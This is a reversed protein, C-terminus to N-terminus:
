RFVTQYYYKGILNWYRYLIASLYANQLLDNGKSTVYARCLDNKSMKEWDPASNAAIRCLEKYEDLM